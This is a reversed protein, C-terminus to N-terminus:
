EEGGGSMDPAVQKSYRDWLVVNVAAALNLPSRTVTPIVVFRHCDGLWRRGLSGDEPGFVYVASEPHVFEHLREANDRREVAVPTMKSVRKSNLIWLAEEEGLRIKNIHKYASLREERPLRRGLDRVRTGTWMLETAGFLACARLAGGVNFDYKPNVLLVSVSM